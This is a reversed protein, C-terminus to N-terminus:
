FRRRLYKVLHKVQRESFFSSEYSRSSPSGKWFISLNKRSCLREPPRPLINCTQDCYVSVNCIPEKMKRQQGKPIVVIKEFVIRRAVMIQELKKLSELETPVDDVYLNRNVTAQCPLKEQIAKSHCTNCIYLKGGFSM